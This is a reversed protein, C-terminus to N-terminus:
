HSTGSRGLRRTAAAGSGIATSIEEVIQSAHHQRQGWSTHHRRPWGRAARLRRRRLAWPKPSAPSASTMRGLRISSFSRPLYPRTATSTASSRKTTSTTSSTAGSGSRLPSPSSHPLPRRIPSAFSYPKPAAPTPASLNINSPANIISREVLDLPQPQTSNQASSM